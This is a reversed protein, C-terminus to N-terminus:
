PVDPLTISPAIIQPQQVRGIREQALAPATLCFAIAILATTKM